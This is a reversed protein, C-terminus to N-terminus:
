GNPLTHGIDRVRRSYHGTSPNKRVFCASERLSTGKQSVVSPFGCKPSSIEWFGAFIANIPVISGKCVSQLNIVDCFVSTMPTARQEATCLQWIIKSMKSGISNVALNTDSIGFAQEWGFEGCCEIYASRHVDM